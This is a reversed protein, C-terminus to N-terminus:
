KVGRGSTPPTVEYGERTFENIKNRLTRLSIGLTKAAHTRNGKHKKLTELIFHTEVTRLTQGVPLSGVWDLTLIPAGEGEVPIMDAVIEDQSSMVVARQIVNQLERVNGPWNHKKLKEMASPSFCLNERNFNRKCDDLFKDSLALIDKPRERLPPVEIHLVYLRYYLDQRFRGQAIAASMDRNTTAIVRANIPIRQNSGLREIEQEQLVRLLKAQLNIDIETIEDLLITGNEAQEFKGIRRSDAGTFAGKEYGFLESELLNAPVAACNIPIFPRENESAAQHIARAIIEKGVGSEGTILVPFSNDATQWIIDQIRIMKEDEATFLKQTSQRPNRGKRKQIFDLYTSARPPTNSFSSDTQSYNFKQSSM